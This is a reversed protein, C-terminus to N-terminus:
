KGAMGLAALLRKAGDRRIGLTSALALLAARPKRTHRAASWLCASARADGHVYLQYAASWLAEAWRRRQAAALLGSNLWRDHILFLTYCHAATPRVFTTRVISTSVIRYHAVPGPEYVFDHAASLRLWMDYDEYTLREDYYGADALAQRRILTAMAPIFNGDALASFVKGSPPAFGPRHQEIFRLPLPKGEEDMQWADSYLVAVQAPQARMAALQREIKDPAWMDDTAIMSIFEGRASTVAENLTSCVGANRTHRIFRADPRHEALWAAILEASNDRSCDDTVILEFDQCTQARISDLCAHLFRAHNYCLAIVTVAPRTPAIM